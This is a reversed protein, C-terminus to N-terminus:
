VSLKEAKQLFKKLLFVPLGVITSYDGKIKKVWDGVEEITLSVSSEKLRGVKLYAKIESESFDKFEIKSKEYGVWCVKKSSNLLALGSYVWCHSNRYSQIVKEAKKENEPKLAIQGNSLIVITDAAIIWQDSYKKAVEQGKRRAISQVIAHPRVYGSHHEDIHAPIIKFELGMAELIKKRQPSQSALIFSM